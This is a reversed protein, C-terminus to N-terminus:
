NKLFEEKAAKFGADKSIHEIKFGGKELARVTARAEIRDYEKIKEPLESYPTSIEKEWCIVRDPSITLSGDANKSCLSHLYKQWKAWRAHEVDAMIEIIKESTDM